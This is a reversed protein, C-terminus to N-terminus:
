HEARIAYDRVYARAMIEYRQNLDLLTYDMYDLLLYLGALVVDSIDLAGDILSLNVIIPDAFVDLRLSVVQNGLNLILGVRLDSVQGVSVVFVRILM